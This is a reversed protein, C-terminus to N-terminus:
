CGAGLFFLSNERALKEARRTIRRQDHLGVVGWFPIISITVALPFSIGFIRSSVFFSARIPFM